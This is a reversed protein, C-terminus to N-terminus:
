DAPNPQPILPLTMETCAGGNPMNYIDIHGGLRNISAYTLFLGVGLGHNKTAIPEKGAQALIEPKFGPGYDKIKLHLSEPDWKAIFDIGSNPNTARAANNLINIISHTLTQDAIIQCTQRHDPTIMLNIKIGPQQSRWVTLLEDLYTTIEMIQGSEARMEGGSASMVSLAKKCRSIQEQILRMKEFLETNKQGRTEQEIEHAIIAMTGLPTGMDHAASAALTGLAIVREDRLANERAEALKRERERLTKAMSLVFFAVLTASFLFGIWMGFVKTSFFAASSDFTPTISKIGQPNYTFTQEGIKPLPINYAILLTYLSTTLLMMYWTYIQPLTIATIILPLLFLWIIPNSAGGTLYLIMAISIVDIALHAFIELETVPTVQRLRFWTYINFSTLALIVLSLSKHPIAIHLAFVSVVVTFLAGTLIFNRIIFLWSLNERISIPSRDLRFHHHM